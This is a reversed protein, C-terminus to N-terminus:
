SVMSFCHAILQGKIYFICVKKSKIYLVTFSLPLYLIEWIGAAGFM